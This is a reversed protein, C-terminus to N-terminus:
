YEPPVFLDVRGWTFLPVSKHSFDDLTKPLTRYWKPLTRYWKNRVTVFSMIVQLQFLARILVCFM